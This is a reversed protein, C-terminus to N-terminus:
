DDSQLKATEFMCMSHYNRRTGWNVTVRQPNVWGRREMGMVPVEDSSNSPGVGECADTSEGKTPSGSIPNERLMM